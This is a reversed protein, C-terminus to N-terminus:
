SQVSMKNNTTKIKLGDFINTQTYFNFLIFSSYTRTLSLFLDDHPGSKTLVWKLSLGYIYILSVRVLSDISAYKGDFGDCECLRFCISLIYWDSKPKNFQKFFSFFVCIYELISIATAQYAVYHNWLFLAVKLHSLRFVIIIIMTPTHKWVCLVPFLCKIDKNDCLLKVLAFVFISFKPM